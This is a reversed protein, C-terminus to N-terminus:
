MVAKGCNGCFHAELPLHALSTGCLPCFRPRALPLGTAYTAQPVAATVGATLESAAGEGSAYALHTYQSPPPPASYASPVSPGQGVYSPEGEEPHFRIGAAEGESGSANRAFSPLPFALPASPSAYSPSLASMAVGGPYASPYLAASPAVAPSSIVQQGGEQQPAWGNIRVGGPPSAVASSPPADTLLQPQMGHQADARLVTPMTHLVTYDPVVAHDLQQKWFWNVFCLFFAVVLMLIWSAGVRGPYFWGFVYTYVVVSYTLVAYITLIGAASCWRATTPTALQCLLVPERTLLAHSPDNAVRLTQGRYAQMMRAHIRM